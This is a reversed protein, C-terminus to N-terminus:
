KKLTNSFINDGKRLQIIFFVAFFNFIASALLGLWIASRDLPRLVSASPNEPEYFVTVQESRSYPTEAMRWSLKVGFYERKGTFKAHKVSYEYEISYSATKKLTGYPYRVSTIIGKTTELSSAQYSSYLGIISGYSFIVLGQHLM